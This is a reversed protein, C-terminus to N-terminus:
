RIARTLANKLSWGKRIRRKFTNLAINYHKCMDSTSKYENGLHDKTMMYFERSQQTKVPETLAREISWGAKIRETYVHRCIKYKSCMIDISPYVNGLHDYSEVCNRIHLKETLTRELSWGNKIRNSYTNLTIGYYECMRTINKFRNGLHDTVFKEKIIKTTKPRGKIAKETLARELSWGRQLRRHVTCAKVNWYKCMSEQNKFENGVHDKVM